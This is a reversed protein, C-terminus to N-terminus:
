VKGEKKREQIMKAYECLAKLRNMKDLNEKLHAESLQKLLDAIRELRHIMGDFKPQELSM